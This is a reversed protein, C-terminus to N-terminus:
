RLSHRTVEDYREIELQQPAHAIDSCAGGITRVNQAYAFCDRGHEIEKM